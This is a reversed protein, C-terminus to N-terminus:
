TLCNCYFVIFQACVNAKLPLALPPCVRFLCLKIGKHQVAQKNLVYARRSLAEDYELVSLLASSRIHLMDYAHVGLPSSLAGLLCKKNM